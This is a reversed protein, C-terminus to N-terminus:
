KYSPCWRRHRKTMAQSLKDHSKTMKTKRRKKIEVRAVGGIYAGYGATFPEIAGKGSNIDWITKALAAQIALTQLKTNDGVGIGITIGIGLWKPQERWNAQAQSSITQTLLIILLLRM